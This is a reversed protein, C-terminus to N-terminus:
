ELSTSGKEKRKVMTKITLNQIEPQDPVIIPIIEKSSLRSTGSLGKTFQVENSSILFYNGPQALITITSNPYLIFDTGKFTKLNLLTSKYIYGNMARINIISISDAFASTILKKHKNLNGSNGRLFTSRWVKELSDRVLFLPKKATILNEKDVHSTCNEASRLANFLMKNTSITPLSIWALYEKVKAFWEDHSLTVHRDIQPYEMIESEKIIHAIYNKLAVAYDGTKEANQAKELFSPQSYFYIAGVIVVILFVFPIIAKKM